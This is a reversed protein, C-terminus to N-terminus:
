LNVNEDRVNVFKVALTIKMSSSIKKISYKNFDLDSKLGENIYFTIYPCHCM